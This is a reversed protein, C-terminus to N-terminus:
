EDANEGKMGGMTRAILDITSLMEDPVEGATSIRKLETLIAAMQTKLAKYVRPNGQVVIDRELCRRYCYEQKPLGSLAVARNIEENEEPSVRFGVTINRFRNHKDLNKASM